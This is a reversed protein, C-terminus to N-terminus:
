YLPECDAYGTVFMPEVLHPRGATLGLSEFRYWWPWGNGDIISTAASAGVVAVDIAGKATTILARHRMTYRPAVGIGLGSCNYKMWDNCCCDRPLGYGDLPGVLPYDAPDTSGLMTVDGALSLM